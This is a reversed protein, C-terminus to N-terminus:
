VGDLGCRPFADRNWKTLRVEGGVLWVENKDAGLVLTVQPALPLTRGFEQQVVSCASLYIKQAEGAPWKQNGRNRIRLGDQSSCAAAFALVFTVFKVATSMVVEHLLEKQVGLITKAVQHVILCNESPGANPGSRLSERVTKRARALRSMVTGIPIVTNGCDGVVTFGELAQRTIFSCNITWVLQAKLSLRNMQSYGDKVLNKLEQASDRVRSLPTLVKTLIDTSGCSHRLIVM